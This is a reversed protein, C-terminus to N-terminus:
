ASSVQLHGSSVAMRANSRARPRRAPAAREPWKTSPTGEASEADGVAWALRQVLQAAAHESSLHVSQVTEDLLVTTSSAPLSPDTTVIIRPM